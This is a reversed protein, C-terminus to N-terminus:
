GKTQQWSRLTQLAPEFAFQRVQLVLTEGCDGLLAQLTGAHRACLTIAATDNHVLFQELTELVRRLETLTMPEAADRHDIPLPAQEDAQAQLPMLRAPETEGSRDPVEGLGRRMRATFWFTSGFGPTSDVGVDGGMLKALRQTISLGLGTGGFHRATSNDAQEFAHFLLKLKEQSIGIGSDRVEFHLLLEGDSEHLMQADLEIRGRETFKVANSAYNFLAQRLRAPDGHLWDPADHDTVRIELDKGRALATASAAVKELVTALHFDTYELHLCEAEIMSFDLIDSIITLLHEGAKDIRDLQETQQRSITPTRMLHSVGMIANLPTRIEHSINALFASKARDAAQAADRALALSRNLSLAELQVLKLETIDTILVYIGRTNGNLIDPIYNVWAYGTSGNAKVVTREFRQAEGRLAARIFPENLRFIEAGLVDQARMGLMDQPRKGFWELYAANAFHCILESDWYGIMSPFSDAITRIFRQQDALTDNAQELLATRQRVLDELNEEQKQLAHEALVRGTIDSHCVVVGHGGHALPTASLMFWRQQNPSHCPYEMSFSRQRGQLVDRIGTIAQAAGDSAYAGVTSCAGLYNVGVETHEAPQGPRNSNEMAFRQWSENVAVIVGNPDLVAIEATVADLIELGFSSQESM